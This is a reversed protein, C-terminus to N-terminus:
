KSAHTSQRAQWGAELKRIMAEAEPTQYWWNNGKGSREKKNGTVHGRKMTRAGQTHPTDTVINDAENPESGRFTRARDRYKQRGRLATERTREHGAGDDHELLIIYYTRGIHLTM